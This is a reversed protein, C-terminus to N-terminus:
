GTLLMMLAIWRMIISTQLELKKRPQQPDVYTDEM